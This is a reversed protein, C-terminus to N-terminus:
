KGTECKLRRKGEKGWIKRGKCGGRRVEGALGGTEWSRKGLERKGEM